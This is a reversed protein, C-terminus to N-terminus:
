IVRDSLSHEVRLSCFPIVIVSVSIRIEPREYRSRRVLKHVLRNLISLVSSRTDVANGIHEDLIRGTEDEEAGIGDFLEEAVRKREIIPRQLRDDIGATPMEKIRSFLKDDSVPKGKRGPVGRKDVPTNM